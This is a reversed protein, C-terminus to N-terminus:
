DISGAGVGFLPYIVLGRGSYAVYGIDFFGCGGSLVTRSGANAGRREMLGQGEVGLILRGIFAHVGAGVTLFSGPLRSYGGRKLSANLGDLDVLTGGIMFYGAGGRPLHDDAGAAQVPAALVSVLGAVLACIKVTTMFFKM